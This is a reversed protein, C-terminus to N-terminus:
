PYLERQVADIAVRAERTIRAVTPDDPVEADMDIHRDLARTIRGGDLGLRLEGVRALQYEAFTWVADHVQVPPLADSYLGADVVVDIGPVAQVLTRVAENANWSLLVVVDARTVLEALTGAAEAPPAVTYASLDAMTAAPGTIGTIGIRRGGREVIVYRRVGPGSVNASVLPLTPDPPVAVLGALDHASVNLADYGVAALGKMMWQDKAAADLRPQGAYDVADTLWYGADVRVTPTPLAREIAAAYGAYRALSGRPRHPCGCTELSGHQEAGYLVVLDAPARPLRQAFPEITFLERAVGREPLATATPPKPVSRAATGSPHPACGAVLLTILATRM